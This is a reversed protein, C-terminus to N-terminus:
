WEVAGFITNNQYIVRDPIVTGPTLVSNLVASKEGIICGRGIRSTFVISQSKLTVDDDIVTPIMEGNHLMGLGGHVIAQHGYTVNHGIQLDTEELAHFIVDDRMLHVHGVHFPTGEDARLSIREGMVSTLRDLTDAMAVAGIVRNRFSPLRTLVGGLKPLNRDPNFSSNGPNYNIGNVNSPRDYFLRTYERAFATNVEIVAEAFVMDAETILRVKGLHVNDAEEQTTVNKGPLVVYGSHLRVGPGVRALQSVQTNRELIAGDVESGFSLFIEHHPDAGVGLRSPGKVTVGHALICREAIQVGDANHLGLATVRRQSVADRGFTTLVAVNDQANTEAGIHIEANSSAHLRTFPGIYVHQDLTIHEAGTITVTPDIFSASEPPAGQPCVPRNLRTPHCETREMGLVLALASRTEATLGIPLSIGFLVAQKFLDRRSSKTM